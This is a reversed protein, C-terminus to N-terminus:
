LFVINGGSDISYGMMEAKPIMVVIEILFKRDEAFGV